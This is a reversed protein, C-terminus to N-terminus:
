HTRRRCSLDRNRAGGIGAQLYMSSIPKAAMSAALLDTPTAGYAEALHLYPQVSAKFGLSSM